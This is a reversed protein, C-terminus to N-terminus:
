PFDHPITIIPKTGSPYSQAQIKRVAPLRGPVYGYRAWRVDGNRGDFILINGSDSIKLHNHKWYSRDLTETSQASWIRGRLPDYLFASNSVVFHLPERARNPFTSSYPQRHDAVWVVTGGDELVLNGDPKLRLVFRGNPSKIFQGARMIQNPPLLEGGSGQFPQSSVARYKSRGMLIGETMYNNM